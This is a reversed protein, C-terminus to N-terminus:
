DMSLDISEHVRIPVEVVPKMSKSDWKWFADAVGGPIAVWKMAKPTKTSKEDVVEFSGEKVVKRLLAIDRCLRAAEVKVPRTVHTSYLGMVWQVRLRLHHHLDQRHPDHLCRRRFSWRLHAVSPWPGFPGGLRLAALIPERWGPFAEMLGEVVPGRELRLARFVTTSYLSSWYMSKEQCDRYLRCEDVGFHQSTLKAAGARLHAMDEPTLQSIRKSTLSELGSYFARVLDDDDRPWPWVYLWQWALLFAPLTVWHLDQLDMAFLLAPGFKCPLICTHPTHVPLM